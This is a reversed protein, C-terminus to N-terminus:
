RCLDFDNMKIDISKEYM